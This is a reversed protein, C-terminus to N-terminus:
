LMEYGKKLLREVFPSAKVVDASGGAMYFIREQKDKMREVYEALTAYKDGSIKNITDLTKRIVNFLKHQQLRGPIRSPCTTVTWM